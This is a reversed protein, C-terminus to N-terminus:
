TLELTAGAEDQDPPVAWASFVNGNEDAAVQWPAHAPSTEDDGGDVHLVVLEVMEGPLFGIGTILVTGGPPYDDTDTGIQAPNFLAAPAVLQNNNDRGGAVLIRKHDLPLETATAGSRELIQADALSISTNTGAIFLAADDPWIVLSQGNALAVATQAPA